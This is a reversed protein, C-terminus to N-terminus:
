QKKFVYQLYMYNHHMELLVEANIKIKVYKKKNIYKETQFYTIQFMKFTRAYM